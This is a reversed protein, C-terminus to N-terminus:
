GKQGTASGPKRESTWDIQPVFACRHPAARIPVGGRGHPVAPVPWARQLQFFAAPSSRFLTTYPFLTDTLTSRPPRLVIVFFGSLVVMLTFLSDFHISSLM